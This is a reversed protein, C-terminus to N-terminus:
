IVDLIFEHSSHLLNGLNFLLYTTQKWWKSRCISTNEWRVGRDAPHCILFYIQNIIHCCTHNWQKKTQAWFYSLSLFQSWPAFFVTTEQTVKVTSCLYIIHGKNNGSSDNKKSLRDHLSLINVGGALACHGTSTTLSECNFQLILLLLSCSVKSVYQLDGSCLLFTM